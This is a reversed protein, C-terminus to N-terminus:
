AQGRSLGLHQRLQQLSEEQERMRAALVRDAREVLDCEDRLARDVAAAIDPATLRTYLAGDEHFERLV